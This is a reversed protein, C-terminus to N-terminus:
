RQGARTFLELLPHPLGEDKVIGDTAPRFLPTLVLKRDEDSPMKEGELLALYTKVMTIREEADTALHTHSLFMRVVLRVAWVGLVGVLVLVAVKWSDPKGDKDLTVFVWLALLCLIGGLGAMSGFMWKMLSRAKIEHASARTTWYEVPGRLTMNERFTKRLADMDGAHRELAKDHADKSAVMLADFDKQQATKIEGIDETTKAFDRHLQEVAAQKEGFLREARVHLGELAEREAQISPEVDTVISFRDILGMLFGRWSESDRADFQYNQGPMVPLFPFLYAIATRPDVKLGAIRQGLPTTSHPLRRNLFTEQVHNQVQAVRERVAKDNAQAKYQVADRALAIASHMPQWANDFASKHSGVNVNQTWTWFDFERQVWALMEEVTTPSFMGGNAGLDMTFLAPEPPEIPKGQEEEM